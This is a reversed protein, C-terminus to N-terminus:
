RASSPLHPLFVQGAVSRVPCDPVGQWCWEGDFFVVVDVRGCGGCDVSKILETEGCTVEASLGAAAEYECFDSNLVTCRASTSPCNNPCDGDLECSRPPPTPGADSGGSTAPSGAATAGGSTISGGTGASGAAILNVSGASSTGATDSSPQGASEGGAGANDAPDLAGGTARGADAAAGGAGAGSSDFANSAQGCALFACAVLLSGVRTARFKPM